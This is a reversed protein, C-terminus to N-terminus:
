ANTFDENIYVFVNAKLTTVLGNPVGKSWHEESRPLVLEDYGQASIKEGEWSYTAELRKSTKNYLKIVRGPEIYFKDPIIFNGVMADYSLYTNYLYSFRDLAEVRTSVPRDAFTMNMARNYQFLVQITPATPVELNYIYEILKVEDKRGICRPLGNQGTGEPIIIEM